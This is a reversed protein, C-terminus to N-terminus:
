PLRVSEQSTGAFEPANTSYVDGDWRVFKRTGDRLTVAVVRTAGNLYVGTTGPAPAADSQELAVV